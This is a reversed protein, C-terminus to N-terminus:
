FDMGECDDNKDKFPAVGSRGSFDAAGHPPGFAVINNNDEEDDAYYAEFGRKKVKKTGGHASFPASAQARQANQVDRKSKYISEWAALAHRYNDDFFVSLRWGQVLQIAHMINAEFHQMVYSAVVVASKENGSECFVLTAGPRPAARLLPPPPLSLPPPMQLEEMTQPSQEQHQLMLSHYKAATASGDDLEEEDLQMVPALYNQDILHAASCFTPILPAGPMAPLDLTVHAPAGIRGLPHRLLASGTTTTTTTAGGGGVGSNERGGAMLKAKATMSSRVAILLTIGKRALFEKDKTAALPGLWVWPLIQQATRRSEYAWKGSASPPPLYASLLLPPPTSDPIIGQPPM